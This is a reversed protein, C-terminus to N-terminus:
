KSGVGTFAHHAHASAPTTNTQKSRSQAAYYAHKEDNTRPTIRIKTRARIKTGDPNKRITITQAAYYAQPPAPPQSRLGSKRTTDNAIAVTSFRSQPSNDKQVRACDRLERPQSGRVRGPAPRRGACVLIPARWSYVGAVRWVVPGSPLCLTLQCLISVSRLSFLSDM